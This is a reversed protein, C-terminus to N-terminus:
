YNYISGDLKNNQVVSGGYNYIDGVLIGNIVLTANRNLIINGVVIGSIDFIIGQKITCQGSVTGTIKTNRNYNYDGNVVGDIIDISNSTNSQEPTNYSNNVQTQSNQNEYKSQNLNEDNYNEQLVVTETQRNSINHYESFSKGSVSSFQWGNKDKYYLVLIEAQYIKHTNLDTLIIDAIVNLYNNKITENVLIFDQFEEVYEFNWYLFLKKGILDSKIQDISPFTYDTANEQNLSIQQPTENQVNTTSIIKDSDNTNFILKYCVFCIVVFIILYYWKFDSQNNLNVAPPTGQNIPNNVEIFEGTQPNFTTNNDIRINRNM